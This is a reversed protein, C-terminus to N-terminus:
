LLTLCTIQDCFEARFKECILNLFCMALLIQLGFVNQARLMPQRLQHTDPVTRGWARILQKLLEAESDQM